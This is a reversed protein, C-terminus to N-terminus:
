ISREFLFGRFNVHILGAWEDRDIATFEVVQRYAPSVFDALKNAGFIRLPLRASYIKEPVTQITFADEPAAQVPTRDVLIAAPKARMAQMLVDYPDDLYQLVGSFVIVDPRAVAVAEEITSFFRLGRTEFEAQGRIVFEPQEVVHWRLGEIVLFPACQRHSSGLAGGFDLVTLSRDAETRLAARLLCAVLPFPPTNDYLLVSDRDTTGEEVARRSADHVCRIIIESDYRGAKARAAEWNPVPPALGSASVYDRGCRYVSRMYRLLM